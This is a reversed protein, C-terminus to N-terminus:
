SGATDCGKVAVLGFGPIMCPLALIDYEGGSSGASLCKAVVQWHQCGQEFVRFRSRQVQEWGLCQSLILKGRQILRSADM